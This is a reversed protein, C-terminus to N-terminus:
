KNTKDSGTQRGKAQSAFWGAVAALSVGVYSLMPERLMDTTLLQASILMTAFCVVIHSSKQSWPLPARQGRTKDKVEDFSLGKHILALAFGFFALLIFLGGFAGAMSSGIALQALSLFVYSAAAPGWTKIKEFFSPNENIM